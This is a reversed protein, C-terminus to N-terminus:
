PCVGCAAKRGETPRRVLVLLKAVRYIWLPEANSDCKFVFQAAEPDGFIAGGETWVAGLRVGTRTEGTLNDAYSFTAWRGAPTPTPTPTTGPDPQITSNDLSFFRRSGEDHDPQHILILDGEGQPIAFCVNGEVRGGAYIEQGEYFALGGLPDPIIGCPSQFEGTYIVRNNGILSFASWMATVSGSAASPYAVELRVMYFRMGEEPPDNFRNEEAVQMRADVVIGLVRIETGDAGLLVESASVPNDLTLGPPPAPVAVTGLSFTVEGWGFGSFHWTLDGASMPVQYAVDGQLAGGPAIEASIEGGLLASSNALNAYADSEYLQGLVDRLEMGHMFSVPEPQDGENRLTVDVYLFYHGEQPARFGDRLSTRVGNVTILLGDLRVTDGITFAQPTPTPTPTPTPSLTSSSTPTPTATPVSTPNSSTTPTSTFDIEYGIFADGDRDIELRYTVYLEGGRDLLATGRCRLSSETRELEEADAYLKLIRVALPNRSSNDKSLELIEEALGSDNCDISQPDLTATRPSVLEDCAVALVITAALVVTLALKLLLISIFDLEQYRLPM